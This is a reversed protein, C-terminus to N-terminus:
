RRGNDTGQRARRAQRQDCSHGTRGAGGAQDAGRKRDAGRKWGRHQPETSCRRQASRRRKTRGWTGYTPNDCKVEGAWEHRIIYRGQFMNNSSAVAGQEVAGTEDRWERGGGMPPAAQFVLDEGIDDKEYRGHLRTVVWGFGSAGLEASGFSLYDQAQLTPGPCPDCTSADWSYETVVVGKTEEQTRDFLARYFSGFSERVDNRVEINTPIFVNKYNAVEYRQGQALIYVILDQKGKSNIMGLRIPLQFKESEYHFRLPSLVARGDQYTVKEPDVKAVFFYMGGEVYPKYLPGAGDPVNYKEQKLWADLATSETASLIVVDYEGVKFQAEIKVAREGKVMEDVATPAPIGGEEEPYELPLCPDQEWYEVLRPATLQDIKDFLGKQLTKVNEKQLVQPVPVVMAFGEAPGEYNNQMSLATKNGHRMMVVQTAENFLKADGGAVYFGCFAAADVTVACGLLLVLGAVSARGASRAARADRRTRRRRASAGVLGAILLLLQGAAGQGASACGACTSAPPETPVPDENTGSPKVEADSEENPVHKINIAPIDQGVLAELKVPAGRPTPASATNPSPAAGVSPEDDGQPGGWIGYQPKDCNVEKSWEHRIIYRGQFMNQPSPRTAQEIAGSDDRWERGGGVPEAAQFVLDEGIDDKDYRGHLRTVVWGGGDAGVEYSGFSLYDQLDLTPGPCPDCTSADWSYETVVVGDTEEQTRDFLARYFSGFDERVENRVEINTPIFVNKYNAVEYRQGKALIYVILDQKGKSNIMGLRIPLQFKESEFHFRLPSLVAKGDSYKVKQPDVKAVFFYMGGEIYPKYLPAAGDPVNYKEQKLWTDLATSETASLIVIDYEGVKFQAEVKVAGEGGDESEVSEKAVAMGRPLEEVPPACPDQEWYEVLRPATLTDIKDFASKDLTKVNEKQLVQPVPVVMAFGEAPGEYNNQMSLATKNGHRMLVVQTAENFLKADGGAVYFGCFATAHATPLCLAILLALWLIRRM